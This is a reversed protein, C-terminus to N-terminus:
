DVGIHIGHQRFADIVEKGDSTCRYMIPRSASDFECVESCFDLLTNGSVGPCMHPIISDPKNLLTISYGNQSVNCPYFLLHKWPNFYFKIESLYCYNCLPIDRM